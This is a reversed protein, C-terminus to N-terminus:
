LFVTFGGIFSARVADRSSLVNDNGMATICKEVESFLVVERYHIFHSTGNNPSEVQLGKLFAIPNMM